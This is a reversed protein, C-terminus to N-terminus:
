NGGLSIKIQKGIKNYEIKVYNDLDKKVKQAYDTAGMLVIEDADVKQAINMIEHMSRGAILTDNPFTFREDDVVIFKAQRTFTTLDVYVKKM